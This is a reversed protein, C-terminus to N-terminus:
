SRECLYSIISPLRFDEEGSRINFRIKICGGSQGKKGKFVGMVRDYPTITAEGDM